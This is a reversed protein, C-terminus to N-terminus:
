SNIIKKIYMCSITDGGQPADEFTIENEGTKSIYVEHLGNLFVSISEPEYPFSTQFITNSGNINGTMTESIERSEHEHNSDGPYIANILERMMNDSINKEKLGSFLRILESRTRKREM